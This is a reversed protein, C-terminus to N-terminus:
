FGGPVWILEGGDGKPHVMQVTVDGDPFPYVVDVTGDEREAAQGSGGSVHLTLELARVPDAYELAYQEGNRANEALWDGFSKEPERMGDALNLYDPKWQAYAESFDAATTIDFFTRSEWASTQWGTETREFTVSDKWVYWLPDATQAPYTIVASASSIEKTEPDETMEVSVVPEVTGAWFPSSWGMTRSGDAETFIGLEEAKEQLKPSLMEFVRDADRSAVAAAWQRAFSFAEEERGTEKPNGSDKEERGGLKGAVFVSTPGDAGGIIAVAETEKPADSVCAFMTAAVASIVLVCSIKFWRKMCGEKGGCVRDKSVCDGEEQCSDIM